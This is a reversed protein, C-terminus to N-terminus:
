KEMLHCTLRYFLVFLLGGIAGWLHADIAVNAEILDSVQENAGVLQEHILKITVGILMLIGTMRLTAKKTNKDEYAIDLFAGFIFLGHLIGSLGVYKTITPSFYFLGASCIVGSTIYLLTINKISYYHGHLAWLMWLAFLNLILHYGNTHFIHGTLMRWFQGQEILRRDYIFLQELQAAFVYGFLAFLSILLIASLHQTNTPLKNLM